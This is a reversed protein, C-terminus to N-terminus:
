SCSEDPQDPSPTEAEAMPIILSQRLPMQCAKNHLYDLLQIQRRQDTGLTAGARGRVM